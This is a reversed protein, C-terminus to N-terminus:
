APFTIKSCYRPWRSFAGRGLTTDVPVRRSPTGKPLKVVAFIHDHTKCENSSVDVEADLGNLAMLATSVAVHDDCDGGGAQITRMPSAYLDVSEPQKRPRGREPDLVVEGVDGTYRIRGHPHGPTPETMWDFIAKAECEGDRAPCRQTIELALQRMRPDRVGAAVMKQILYVRDEISVEESGEGYRRLTGADSTVTEVPRPGPGQLGARKKRGRAVALTHAITAGISLAGLLIPALAM